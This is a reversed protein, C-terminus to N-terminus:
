LPHSSLLAESQEGALLWDILQKHVLHAIRGTDIFNLPGLGDGVWIKFARSGISGEMFNEAPYM